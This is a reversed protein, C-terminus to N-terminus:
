ALAKDPVSVVTVKPAGPKPELPTTASVKIPVDYGRDKLVKPWDETTLKKIEDNTLTYADLDMDGLKKGGVSKLKGGESAMEKNPKWTIKGKVTKTLAHAMARFAQKPSLGKTRGACYYEIMDGDAHHWRAHASIGNLLVEKGNGSAEINARWWSYFSEASGVDFAKEKKIATAYKKSALSKQKIWAKKKKDNAKLAKKYGVLDKKYTSNPNKKAPKKPPKPLPGFDYEQAAKANLLNELANHYKPDTLSTDHGLYVIAAEVFKKYDSEYRDKDAEFAAMAEGHNPGVRNWKWQQKTKTPSNSLVLSGPFKLPIELLKPDTATNVANILQFTGECQKLSPLIYIPKHKHPYWGVKTGKPLLILSQNLEDVFNKLALDYDAGPKDALPPLNQDFILAKADDETWKLMLSYKSEAAIVVYGRKVLDKVYKWNAKQKASGYIVPWVHIEMGITHTNFDAGCHPLKYEISEHPQMVIGSRSMWFTVNKFTKASLWKLEESYASIEQKKKWKGKGKRTPYRTDPDHVVFGTVKKRFPYVRNRKKDKARPNGRYADKHDFGGYIIKGGGQPKYKTNLNSISPWRTPGQPTVQYPPAGAFAQEGGTPDSYNETSTATSVIGLCIGRRNDIKKNPYQVRIIQGLKPLPLDESVATFIHQMDLKARDVPSLTGEQFNSPPPLRLAPIYARVQWRNFKSPDESESTTGTAPANGVPTVIEVVMANLIIESWRVQNQLKELAMSQHTIIDTTGTRQSQQFNQIAETTFMFQPNLKGVTPFEAM